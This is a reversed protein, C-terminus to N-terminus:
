TRAQKEIGIPARKRATDKPSPTPASQRSPWSRTSCWWSRHRRTRARARSPSSCAPPRSGAVPIRVLGQHRLPQALRPVLAVGCGAAVLAGAADWDQCEHQVDPSFGAVACVATTIMACPDSPESSVWVEDALLGLEMGSAILEPTALPHGAPLVVDMPDSLLDRRLYRADRRSPADRYDVAVLLDLADDDIMQVALPPEVEVVSVQITPREARLRAIAPGVLAAIGTSLSGVRVTGATGESWGALDARAQQLQESVVDAHRLLVRAQGTLRVGRGHRELLPM